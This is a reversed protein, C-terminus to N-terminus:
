LGELISAINDALGLLIQAQTLADQSDPQQLRSHANALQTLAPQAELLATEVQLNQVDAVVDNFETLLTLSDIDQDKRLEKLIEESNFRINNRFDDSAEILVALQDQLLNSIERVSQDNEASVQSVTKNIKNSIIVKAISSAANIGNEILNNTRALAEDSEPRFFHSSNLQQINESVNSFNEGIADIEQGDTLDGLRSAYATLAALLIENQAKAKSTIFPDVKPIEAGENSLYKRANALNFGRQELQNVAAFSRRIGSATAETAIAFTGVSQATADIGQTACGSVVLLIAPLLLYRRCFISRNIRM